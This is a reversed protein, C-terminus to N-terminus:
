EVEIGSLMGFLRDADNSSLRAVDGELAHYTSGDISNKALRRADKDTSVEFDCSWPDIREERREESSCFDHVAAM